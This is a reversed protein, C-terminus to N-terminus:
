VDVGQYSFSFTLSTDSREAGAWTRYGWILTGDTGVFFPGPSANLPDDVLMKVVRDPILPIAWSPLTFGSTLSVLSSSTHVIPTVTDITVIRGVRSIKITGSSVTTGGSTAGALNINQENAYISIGAIAADVESTSYVDLNGRAIALDTLGSLNNAKLLYRDDGESKSYVDLATRAGVATSAGTGGGSISVLEPSWSAGNWKNFVGSAYQIAGVPINTVSIGNFMLASAKDNDRVTDLLTAYNDTIVPKNFDSAM